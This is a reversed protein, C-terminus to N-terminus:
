PEQLEIPPTPTLDWVTSPVPDHTNLDWFGEGFTAIPRWTELLLVALGIIIIVGPRAIPAYTTLALATADVTVAWPATVTVVYTTLVLSTVPVEITIGTETAEVDPAFTALTLTTADVVVIFPALVTPVYTTLTLTAVPVNIFEGFVLLPALTSLTLSTAPVVVIFPSLVTPVLTSLTLTAVPVTVQFDDGATVAVDPAYTSLTLTTTPVEVLFPATVTPVLTSLTLSTAPVEVLFPALVTPVLTSLTLTTAPVEVVFPATITPILTSLTLATAPVEVVFPALVTPALTSLIMTAAPITVGVSSSPPSTVLTLEPPGARMNVANVQYDYTRDSGATRQVTFRAEYPSLHPRMDVVDIGTPMDDFTVVLTDALIVSGGTRVKRYMRFIVADGSVMNSIDVTLQMATKETLADAGVLDVESATSVQSGSALADLVVATPAYTTLTLTAVPVEVLFPATITPVLTSLTLSTAPVDVLFPTTVTPVLTSLTLSTAPVEVLFPATITPVLTSLSLSTAPVEVLFPTTVTPVLTSLVLATAPVTVGFFDSILVTPVLTSLALSTAPVEVAWPATITPVLTSLTLTAAPIEVLFPATVTPVLTSLTLTAAPVTIVLAESVVATPAFTSLTLSTAPVEVLFPATVTPVLTNLSLSTAPVEVIFPAAVDPAFTSLTLTATPVEVPTNVVPLPAFTSLTLTAAPVVVLFPATVTPVLTTIVLAAAPIIEAFSSGTAPTHLLLAWQDRIELNKAGAIEFGMLFDEDATPVFNGTDETAIGRWSDSSNAIADMTIARHILGTGPRASMYHTTGGGTGRQYVGLLFVGQITGDVTYPGSSPGGDHGNNSVANTDFLTGCRPGAADHGAWNSSTLPTQGTVQWETTGDSINLASGSTNDSTATAAQGQYAFVESPGLNNGQLTSSHSVVYIDDFDTNGSATWDSDQGRLTLRYPDDTSTGSFDGTAGSSLSVGDLWFEWAGSDAHEFAFEISHETANTLPATETHVATAPVGFLQLDGVANVRVEAITADSEDIVLLIAGALGSGEPVTQALRVRVGILIHADSLGETNDIASGGSGWALPLTIEQQTAAASCRYHFAGSLGAPSAISGVVSPSGVTAGVATVLSLDGEEAGYM